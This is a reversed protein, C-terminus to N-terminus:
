QTASGDTEIVPPSDKSQRYTRTAAIVQGAVEDYNRPVGQHKSQEILTSVAGQLEGDELTIGLYDAVKAALLLAAVSRADGISAFQETSGHAGVHGGVVRM